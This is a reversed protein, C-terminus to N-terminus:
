PVCTGKLSSQIRIRMSRGSTGNSGCSSHHTCLSCRMGSGFSAQSAVTPPKCSTRAPVQSVAMKILALAHTHMAVARRSRPRACKVSAKKGRTNICPACASFVSFENWNCNESQAANVTSPRTRTAILSSRGPGSLTM